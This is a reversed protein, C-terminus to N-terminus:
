TSGLLLCRTSGKTKLENVKLSRHKSPSLSIACNRLTERVYLTSRPQCPTSLLVVFTWGRQEAEGSGGPSAGRLFFRFPWMCVTPLCTNVSTRGNMPCVFVLSFVFDRAENHNQLPLSPCVNIIIFLYYMIVFQFPSQLFVVPYWSLFYHTTQISCLSLSSFLSPSLGLSHAVLYGFDNSHILEGLSFFSSSIQTKRSTM